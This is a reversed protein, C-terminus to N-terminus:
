QNPVFRANLRAQATAGEYILFQNGQVTGTGPDLTEWSLELRYTVGGVDVTFNTIPSKLEVIDASALQDSSNETSIFGLDINVVGSSSPNSLNLNISLTGGSAESQNFTNGNLM